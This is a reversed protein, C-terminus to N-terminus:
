AGSRGDAPDLRAVQCVLIRGLFERGHMEELVSLTEEDSSFRVFAFGRPENTRINKPRRFYKVHGFNSFFRFIEEDSAAHSINAVYIRM